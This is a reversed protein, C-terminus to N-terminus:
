YDPERDLKESTSSITDIDCSKNRLFFCGQRESRSKKTKLYKKQGECM